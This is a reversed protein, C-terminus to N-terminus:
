KGLLRKAVKLFDERSTPYIRATHDKGAIVLRSGDASLAVADDSLSIDAEYEFAILLKGSRTDWVRAKKRTVVAVRTEDASFAVSYNNLAEHAGELRVTMKGDPEWVHLVDDGIHVLMRGIRIPLLPYLNGPRRSPLSSLPRLPTGDKLEVGQVERLKWGSVSSTMVGKGDASFSMFYEGENLDFVGVLKCTRADLFTIFRRIHFGMGYAVMVYEGGAVFSVGQVGGVRGEPIRAPVSCVPRGTSVDWTQIEETLSVTVLRTSDQLFAAHKTHSHWLEEDMLQSSIALTHRLVGTRADWLRAADDAITLITRDDPSFIVTNLPRLHGRLAAFAPSHSADAIRIKGGSVTVVRARGESLAASSVRGRYGALVRVDGGPSQIYVRPPLAEGWLNGRRTMITIVSGDDGFGVFRDHILDHPTKVEVVRGSRPFYVARRHLSPGPISSYVAPQDDPTFAVGDNLTPRFQEIGKLLEHRGTTIECVTVQPMATGMQRYLIIHSGDHSLAVDKLSRLNYGLGCDTDLARAEEGSVDWLSLRSTETELSAISASAISAVALRRGDRSLSARENRNPQPDFLTRKGTREDLLTWKLRDTQRDYVSSFIKEGGFSILPGMWERNEMEGFPLSYDMASAAAVLGTLVQEPFDGQRALSQEAANVALSLADTEMGPERALLVARSGAERRSTDAAREASQRELEQAQRMAHEATKQRESAAKAEAAASVAQDLADAAAGKLRDIEAAIGQLRHEAEGVKKNAAAVDSDAQRKIAAASAEAARIVLLSVIATILIVSLGALLSARLWQSRRTYRFSEKILNVVEPSPDGNRVRAGDERIKAIGIVDRWHEQAVLAGDVDVPIFPRGTRRFLEIEKRVFSSAVAGPTGVLVFVTSKLIKKKLREPLEENPEAALQDFFCIHRKAALRAALSPAYRIADARSYSIFIDDGFFFRYLKEWPTERTKPPPPGFDYADKILLPQQNM